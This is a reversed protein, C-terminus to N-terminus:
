GPESELYYECWNKGNGEKRESTIVFGEKRLLHIDRALRTYRFEIIAQWSTLRRGARLQTLAWAKQTDAVDITAPAAFMDMQSMGEQSQNLSSDKEWRKKGTKTIAM